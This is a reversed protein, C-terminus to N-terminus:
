AQETNYWTPPLMRYVSYAPADTWSGAVEFSFRVMEKLGELRLTFIDTDTPLESFSGTKVVGEGPDETNKHYVTVTFSTVGATEKMYEYSFIANDAERPFWDSFLKTDALLTQGIHM